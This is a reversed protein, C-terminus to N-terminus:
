FQFAVTPHDPVFFLMKEMHWVEGTEMGISQINGFKQEPFYNFEYQDLASILHVTFSVFPFSGRQTQTPTHQSQTGNLSM